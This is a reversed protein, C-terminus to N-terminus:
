RSTITPSHNERPAGPETTMAHRTNYDVFQDRLADQDLGFQSLEYTHKGHKGKPNHDLHQQFRAEIPADFPEGIFDLIQHATKIPAKVLDAYNVDLVDDNIEPHQDRYAMTDRLGQEWQASVDRGIQKLDVQHSFPNRLAQFLSAMSPIVEAPDRHLQIIKADPYTTLLAPFSLLHGPAKLVWRTNQIGHQLWSLYLRHYDYAPQWDCTKLWDNYAQLNHAVHFQMSRLSLAQLTICEHPLHTGLAHVSRFNPSLFDVAKIQATTISQRIRDFGSRGPVFTAEWFKPARLAPHSALLEHLLTSGTRPLGLIFVPARVKEQHLDFRTEYHNLRLRNCLMRHLYIWSGIRGKANLDATNRYGEILLDLPEFFDDVGFDDLRTTLTAARLLSRASYFNSM